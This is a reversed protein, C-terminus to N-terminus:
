LTGGPPRILDLAGALEDLSHVIFTKAGAKRWQSLRYQQLLTPSEGARKLEIEFPVGRWCGHIDPDGTQGMPSGHRKRWQFSPDERAIIKLRKEVAALLRSEPPKM